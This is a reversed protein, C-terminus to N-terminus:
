PKGYNPYHYNPSNPLGIHTHRDRYGRQTNAPLFETKGLANDFVENSIGSVSLDVARAGREILHPSTESSDDVIEYTTVSRIKGCKDRFRDGGTVSLTFQNDQIGSNIIEQNLRILNRVVLLNNLIYDNWEIRLGMPDLWNIPNNQAYTFLNLGGWYRIPDKNIFRGVQPDYYRARMYLLGNDDDMVGYQGVYLFANPIAEVANMLNGFEDYAYKNVMNGSSDTMAITNGSGNYHYFYTSGSPTMKAVLGLGDYVYYSTINYAGDMEAIVQPLFGNPDVLYKTTAGSDTRSARNFLGDYQYQINLSPSSINTLRDQSDFTYTTTNGSQTRTYLNGNPDYSYNTAGAATLFNGPLYTYDVGVLSPVWSLPEQFSVNTRNGVGDLTYAYQSIIGGPRNNTLGTMRNRNDYDFTTYTGNPYHISTLNAKYNNEDYHYDIVSLNPLTIRSLRNYADYDYSVLGFTTAITHLNGVEDYSYDIRKGGPYIVDKLRNLEDHRM